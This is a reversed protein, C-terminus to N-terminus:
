RDTTSAKPYDQQFLWLCTSSSGKSGRLSTDPSCNGVWGGHARAPERSLLPQGPRSLSLQRKAKYFYPRKELWSGEIILPFNPIAQWLPSPYHDEEQQRPQSRWSFCTVHHPLYPERSRQPWVPKQMIRTVHCLCRSKEKHGHGAEPQGRSPVKHTVLQGRAIGLTVSCWWLAGLLESIWPEVM